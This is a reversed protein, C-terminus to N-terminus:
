KNEVTKKVKRRKRRQLIEEKRGKKKDQKKRKKEKLGDRYGEPEKIGEKRGKGSTQGDKM